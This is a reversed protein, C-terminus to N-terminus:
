RVESPDNRGSSMRARMAHPPVGDNLHTCGGLRAPMHDAIDAYRSELVILDWDREPWHWRGCACFEEKPAPAPTNM